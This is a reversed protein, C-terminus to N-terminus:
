KKEACFALVQAALHARIPFYLLNYKARQKAIAKRCYEIIPEGEPPVIYYWKRM